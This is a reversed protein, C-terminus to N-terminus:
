QAVGREAEIQMYLDRGKPAKRVRINFATGEWIIRDSDTIDAPYRVVFLYRAEANVREYDTVEKGSLPRVLAWIDGKTQWAVSNGGSGNPTLVQEEIAILQDLEGPRFRPM